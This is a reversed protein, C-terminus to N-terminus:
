TMLQPGAAAPAVTVMSGIFAVAAMSLLATRIM